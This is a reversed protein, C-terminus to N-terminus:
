KYGSARVVLGRPQDHALYMFFFINSSLFLHFISLFIVTETFIRVESLLEVYCVFAQLFFQHGQFLLQSINQNHRSQLLLFIITCTCLNHFKPASSAYRTPGDQITVQTVNAELHGLNRFNKLNILNM